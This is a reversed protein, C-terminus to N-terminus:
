RPFGETATGTSRTSSSQRSTPGPAGPGIRSSSSPTSSGTSRGLTELGQIIANVGFLFADTSEAPSPQNTIKARALEAHNHEEAVFGLVYHILTQAAWRAHQNSFQRTFPHHLQQFPILTDPKFAQVFSIVDASDRVPLLADRIDRAAQSPDTTSIAQASDTLIREAVAALLDQKSAIHYYLAGPQVGLDKAVRRMSLGSLGHERLIKYAEDVIQIRSLGM